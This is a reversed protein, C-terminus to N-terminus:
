IATNYYKSPNKLTKVKVKMVGTDPLLDVPDYPVDNGATIYINYESYDNLEDFVIVGNGNQNTGVVKYFREDLQQNNALLGRSIQYSTPQAQTTPTAIAYVKGVEILEIHLTAIYYSISALTPSTIVRPASREVPTVRIAINTYLEPVLAALDSIKQSDSLANAIELPTPSNNEPDPAVTVTYGSLQNGLVKDKESIHEPPFLEVGRFILRSEAIPLVISLAEILNSISTNKLTPILLNVGETVIVTKFNTSSINSYDGYASRGLFYATYGTQAELTTINIYTSFTFGATYKEVDISGAEYFQSSVGDLQGSVLQDVTPILASQIIAM